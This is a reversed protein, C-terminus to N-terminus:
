VKRGGDAEGREQGGGIRGWRGERSEGKDGGVRTEIM